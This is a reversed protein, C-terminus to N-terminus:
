KLLIEKTGGLEGILNQPLDTWPYLRIDSCVFLYLNSGRIYISVEMKYIAIKEMFKLILLLFISASKECKTQSNKINQNLLIRIQLM